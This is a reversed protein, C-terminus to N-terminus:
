QDSFAGAAQVFNSIDEHAYQSSNGASFHIETFHRFTLKESKQKISLFVDLQGNTLLFFNNQISNMKVFENKRKLTKYETAMEQLIEEFASLFESYNVLLNLSRGLVLSLMWDYKQKGVWMVESTSREGWKVTAMTEFYDRKIKLANQSFNDRFKLFLSYIEKEDEKEANKQM